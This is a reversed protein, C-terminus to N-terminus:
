REFFRMAGEASKVVPAGNVLDSLDIVGTFGRTIAGSDAGTRYVLQRQVNRYTSGFIHVDEIDIATLDKLLKKREDRGGSQLVRAQDRTLLHQRGPPNFGSHHFVHAFRTDQPGHDTSYEFTNKAFIFHTGFYEYNPHAPPSTPDNDNFLPVTIMPPNAKRFTGTSKFSCGFVVGFDSEDRFRVFDGACDEFKNEVVYVHQAGYATYIMHAHSDQGVRAFTCHRVLVHDTKEGTIGLACYLAGPLDIFRCRELRIKQSDIIRLAAGIKAPTTFTLDRL